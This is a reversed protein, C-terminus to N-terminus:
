PRPESFEEYLFESRFKPFVCQSTPVELSAVRECLESSCTDGYPCAKRCAHALIRSILKGQFLSFGSQLARTLDGEYTIQTLIINEKPYTLPMKALADDWPICMFDPHLDNLNMLTFCDTTAHTLCWAYGCRKLKDLAAFFAEENLLIDEAALCVFIPKQIAQMFVDFTKTTIDSVCFPIFASGMFQNYFDFQEMNKELAEKYFYSILWSSPEDPSNITKILKKMNMDYLNFVHKKVRPTLQLVGRQIVIETIPVECLRAQIQEFLPAKEQIVPVTLDSLKSLINGAHEPLQYLTYFPAQEEKIFPDDSLVQKIRDIQPMSLTTLDRTGVLLIDNNSLFVLRAPIASTVPALLHALMNLKTPIKNQASLGSTHLWLATADIGSTSLRAIIQKSLSEPTQYNM